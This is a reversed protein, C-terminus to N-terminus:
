DQWGYHRSYQWKRLFSRLFDVKPRTNSASRQRPRGTTRAEYVEAVLHSYNQAMREPDFLSRAKSQILPRLQRLAQLDTTIELLASAFGSSDAM